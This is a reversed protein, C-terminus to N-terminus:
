PLRTTMLEAVRNRAPAPEPVEAPLESTRDPLVEVASAAKIKTAILGELIAIAQNLDATEKRISEAVASNEQAIAGNHQAQKDFDATTANIEEVGTVLERTSRQIEGMQTTATQAQVGVERFITDVNRSLEVGHAALGRSKEIFQAISAAEAGAQKAMQRVEDAIVAFGLGAEGARAAEISANLALLNTQFAIEDITSAIRKTEDSTTAIQQMAGVLRNMSDTARRVLADTQEMGRSAAEANDANQRNTATLEELSASTQQLVAAQQSVGDALRTAAEATQGSVAVMNRLSAKLAQVAEAVTRFSARGLWFVVVCSVALMGALLFITISRQRQV